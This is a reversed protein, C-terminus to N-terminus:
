ENLLKMLRNAKDKGEVILIAGGNNSVILKGNSTGIEYYPHKKKLEAILISETAFRWAEKETDATYVWGTVMVAFFTEPFFGDTQKELCVAESFKSLVYEKHTM